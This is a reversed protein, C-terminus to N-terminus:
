RILQIWGKRVEFGDGLDLIYFYTGDPVPESKRTGDWVRDDSMNNAEYVLRGYRNFISISTNSFSGIDKIKLFDNTGDGNPSFQNFVFGDEADIPASVRVEASAENNDPNGDLPSSRRISATNVFTGEIPVLVTIMLTAQQDLQLSPIQWIGSEPSYEGIDATHTLYVFGGDQDQPILDIVEIQNVVDEQSENTVTITFVVEDGVLPRDSLASKELVLDVGEPLDINLTITSVNNGSTGDIPFSELLEATNSYNGGELVEVTIELTATAVEELEFIDWEGLDPDYAGLSAIHDVYQFGTELFDGIKIGLVRSDSLNNVRVTFTVESGITADPNDVTKVIELDIPDPDCDPTLNPDCPDLPDTGNAIEEGDTIGDGDTDCLQNFNDPICPNENAPDQQDNVGDADTDLINSDLADIIGDSDEDFPNSVDGVEVGDNIGDGDTDPDNPNTGLSAEEGDFLGDGDSDVDCDNVFITVVASENECPAQAGTTTYTFIYNGDPRGEFDVINTGSEITLDGSPDQTVTWVGPDEGTLTDDLDITTPGNEAVSCASTDSPTGASPQPIVTATVAERESTCGNATTEVWFTATVAVNPTFVSLNSLVTTGTQTAYWNFSPADPSGPIEGSVTLTVQGPGCITDDTTELIIPTANLVLTIELTPSACNSAADFFFGYYTGAAPDAVEAPTLHGSLVLPDPNISWTLVSGSPPTSNTYDNLSVTIVDCFLTPTAPDLEPASSPCEDNDVNTVPVDAVNAGTLANYQADASTVEGTIINYNQNGDVIGDDVGTVTVDVGTDWNAIPVTVSAAVTGESTDDSTLAINVLASPESSLTVTFTATGGDETTNGSIPSVNVGIADNDTNTVNVDAVNGGNLANYAADGSSVNGTVITYNIDGDVLADDQGTVTVIAGTDWQASPITVSAPVTGESTDNSSLDITVSASPQSNLTITFTATGGNETTNGSIASVSVGVTDNDTNTVSVNPVDGGGLDDYDNDSSTVNGTIINYNIDGDVLADDQGTVTVVVGTDWQAAPITASAPVTGESTDDSSLNVTVSGSPQSNLTITFTATGGNETTNGSIATVNVGASDDDTNTVSVNPVAGGGFADYIPDASQVNGTIITYNVDGDIIADDQGTVTVVVGTNWQSPQITANAPVTGESNDNSSLPIIVDATPESELTITFTATGGAETTNGSIPTADLGATDNDTINVQDSSPSGISYGAGAALTLEVDETVEDINDDVATITIDATQQGDPISVTTGITTYDATNTASGGITINVVQSVGLGNQAGLDVEFTGSTSGAETATGDTASITATFSDDNNITYTHTNQAGLVAEDGVASILFNITENNEVIGENNVSFTPLNFVFNNYNGPPINVLQPDNYDYDVNGGTATGTGLDTITLSASVLVDGDLLIQPVNGGSNEDDSNAATAFEVIVQATAMQVFCTFLAGLIIRKLFRLSYPNERRKKNLRM